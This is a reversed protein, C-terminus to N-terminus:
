KDHVPRIPMHFARVYDLLYRKEGAGILLMWATVVGPHIDYGRANSQTWSVTSTWYFASTNVHAPGGLFRAYKEGTPDYYLGGMPLDISNGNPGTAEYWKIGGQELKTWQCRNMLEKMEAYTPMRWGDGWHVTVVDLDTGSIDAPPKNGGYNSTNWTYGQEDYSIGDASWLAGTPDGWAFYGGYDTPSSAGLNCNAWLVSLGLDVAEVNSPKQLNFVPPEIKVDPENDKGCGTAMLLIALLGFLYNYTKM